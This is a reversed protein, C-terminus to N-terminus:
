TVVLGLGTLLAGDGIWTDHSLKTYLLNYWAIKNQMHIKIGLLITCMGLKPKIWHKDMLTDMQVYQGLKHKVNINKFFSTSSM